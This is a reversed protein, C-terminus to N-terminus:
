GEKSGRLRRTCIQHRIRACQTKCLAKLTSHTSHGPLQRVLRDGRAQVNPNPYRDARVGCLSGTLALQQSKSKSGPTSGRHSSSTAPGMSSTAPRDLFQELAVAWPGRETQRARRMRHTSPRTALEQMTQTALEQMTQTALEQMTETADASLKLVDPESPGAAPSILPSKSRPKTSPLLTTNLLELVQNDAATLPPYQLPQSAEYNSFM